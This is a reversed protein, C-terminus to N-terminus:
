ARAKAPTREETGSDSMASLLMTVATYLVVVIVLWRVTSLELSKVLYAAVLVGPVGGLALGIAVRLSYSQERIFRLSGVPMLFACSNMMIPFAATPNMGLLSVLIMCPAYLGIGLTMLAGLAFNGVVAIVLKTGRVGLAEGGGPFLELQTMFMLTAAGLLALGMGAQVNRRPWHSVVGAGLWAGLVAAAIMSLLTVIDVPILSTFIFAQSITPLTHGANLTGPIVRDPVMKLFRFAATSTAFSGIGLADFFNTVAGLGIMVPTPFRTDTAPSAPRNALGRVAMVARRWGAVYVLTLVGLASMLATIPHLGM